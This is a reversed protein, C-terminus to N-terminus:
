RRLIENPKRWDEGKLAAADHFTVGAEDVILFTLAKSAGTIVIADVGCGKIKPALTGGCYSEGFGGTAPSKAFVAFRSQGWQKTGTVPGTTIVFVSDHSLPDVAVPNEKMLLHVGLGKGGLSRRLVDDPLAEYSLSETSLDIRLLRNHFGNM